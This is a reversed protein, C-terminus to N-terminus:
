VATRLFFTLSSNGKATKEDDVAPIRLRRLHPARAGLTPLPAVAPLFDSTPPPRPFLELHPGHRPSFNLTPSSSRFSPFGIPHRRALVLASLLGHFVSFKSTPGRGCFLRFHPVPSSFTGLPARAPTPLKFHPVPESSNRLPSGSRPERSWGKRAVCNNTALGFLGSNAQRLAREVGKLPSGAADILHRDEVVDDEGGVGVLRTPAAGKAEAARCAAPEKSIATGM